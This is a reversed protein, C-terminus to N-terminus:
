KYYFVVWVHYASLLTILLSIAVHSIMWGQFYWQPKTKIVDLNFMGLIFNSFFTISLFFLYAYGLQMSHVYFIIPSLAGTWTHLDYFLLGSELFKDNTRVLSLTWQFLIFIGLALGSWRRYMQDQQLDQLYEWRIDFVQQLIFLAFLVYGVINYYKKHM